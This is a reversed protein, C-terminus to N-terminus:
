CLSLQLAKFPQKCFTNAKYDVESSLPQMLIFGGCFVLLSVSSNNWWGTERTIVIDMESDGFQVLSNATFSDTELELKQHLRIMSESFFQSNLFLKIINTIGLFEFTLTELQYFDNNFIIEMLFPNNKSLTVCM